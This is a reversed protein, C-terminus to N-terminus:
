VGVELTGTDPEELVCEQVGKRQLSEWAARDMAIVPNPPDTLLTYRALASLGALQGPLSCGEAFRLTHTARVPSRFFPLAKQWTEKPTGPLHLRRGRGSRAPEGLGATELEDFARSMTMASYGLLRASDAINTDDGGRLLLHILVAQTAPRFRQSGTRLRRFHERLDVGLMPLYMQNGPVLFPVKQEILRKRNYSTMEQRVYVLHGDWRTQVQEMQMRIRAPTTEADEKDAMLLCPLDLIRAVLFTYRRELYFPLSEAGEWPTLIVPCALTERLYSTLCDILKTM